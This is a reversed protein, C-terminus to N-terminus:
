TAKLCCAFFRTRSEPYLWAPPGAPIEAALHDGDLAVKIYAYTGVYDPLASAPVDVVSHEISKFDPFDYVTGASRLVEEELAGGGGGSTMVVIGDGHLYEVMDDQFYASGEHRIYPNEPSGGVEFCQVWVM